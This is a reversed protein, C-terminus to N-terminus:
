VGLWLWTFLFIFEEEDSWWSSAIKTLSYVKLELFVRELTVGDKWTIQQFEGSLNRNGLKGWVAEVSQLVGSISNVESLILSIAVKWSVKWRQLSLPCNQKTLFVFCVEEEICAATCALNIACVCTNCCQCKQWPIVSLTASLMLVANSICFCFCCNHDVQIWFFLKMGLPNQATFQVAYKMFICEFPVSRNRETTHFLASWSPDGPYWFKVWM